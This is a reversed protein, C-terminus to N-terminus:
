CVTGCRSAPSQLAMCILYAAIDQCVNGKSCLMSNARLLQQIAYPHVQLHTEAILQAKALQANRGVLEPWEQKGTYFPPSDGFGTSGSILHGAGDFVASCLLQLIVGSM